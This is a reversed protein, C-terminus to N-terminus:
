LLEKMMVLANEGDHYYKNRKSIVSFGQGQYLSIAPLNSERVELLIREVGLTKLEKTAREILAKAVGKKRHSPRIIIGEIDATDVSQSVSIYGILEGEIKAGLLHFRGSNFASKLMDLTWGDDFYLGNFESLANIDLVSLKEITM